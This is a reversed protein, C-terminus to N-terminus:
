SEGGNTSAGVTVPEAARRRLPRGFRSTRAPEAVEPKESGRKQWKSFLYLNAGFFVVYIVTVIIDRVSRKDFNFPFNVGLGPIKQNSRFVFKTTDWQLYKDSFTIWEHPIIAYALTMLAFVGVAGAMCEAWTAPRD